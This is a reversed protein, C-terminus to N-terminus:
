YIRCPHPFYTLILGICMDGVYVCVCVRLLVFQVLYKISVMARHLSFGPAQIMEGLNLKSASLDIIDTVDIWKEEETKTECEKEIEIKTTVSSGNSPQPQNTSETTVSQDGTTEEADMSM